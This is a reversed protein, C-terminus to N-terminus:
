DSAGKAEPQQSCPSKCQFCISTCDMNTEPVFGPDLSVGLASDFPAKILWEATCVCVCVCMRSMTWFADFGTNDLMTSAAVVLM